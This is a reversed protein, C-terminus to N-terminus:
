AETISLPLYILPPITQPFRICIPEGRKLSSSIELGHILTNRYIIGAPPINATKWNQNLIHTSLATGRYDDRAPSSSTFLFSPFFPAPIGSIDSKRRSSRVHFQQRSRPLLPHCASMDWTTRIWHSLFPAHHGQKPYAALVM